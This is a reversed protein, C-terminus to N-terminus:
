RGVLRTIYADIRKYRVYVKYLQGCDLPNAFASIKKKDRYGVNNRKRRWIVRLSYVMNKKESSSSLNDFLFFATQYTKEKVFNVFYWRYIIAIANLVFLPINGHRRRLIELRDKFRTNM